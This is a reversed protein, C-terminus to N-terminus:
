PLQPIVGTIKYHSIHIVNVGELIHMSSQTCPVHYVFTCTYVHMHICIRDESILQMIQHGGLFINMDNKSTVSKTPLRM